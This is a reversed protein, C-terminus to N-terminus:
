KVLLSRIKFAGFFWRHLYLVIRQCRRQFHLTETVSRRMDADSDHVQVVLCGVTVFTALSGLIQGNAGVANWNM